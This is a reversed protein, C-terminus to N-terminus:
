CSKLPGNDRGRWEVSTIQGAGDHNLVIQGGGPCDGARAIELMRLLRRWFHEPIPREALPSSGEPRM